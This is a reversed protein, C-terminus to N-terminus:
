ENLRGIIVSVVDNYLKWKPNLKGTYMPIQEKIKRATMLSIKLITKYKVGLKCNIIDQELENALDIAKQFEDSIKFCTIVAIKSCAANENIENKM